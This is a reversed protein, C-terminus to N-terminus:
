FRWVFAPGSMTLVLRPGQKEQKRHAPAMVRDSVLEASAYGVAAGLALDSLWHMNDVLRAVSSAVALSYLGYSAWDRNIDDSLSKALAFAVTAHGSPMSSYSDFYEFDDWGSAFKPRRRSITYKAAGEIVASVAISMAAREGATLVADNDTVLGYASLGVSVSVFAPWEGFPRVIDASTKYAGTRHDDFWSLASEDFSMMLGVGGVVAATRLLWPHDTTDEGDQTPTTALSNSCLFILLMAIAFRTSHM